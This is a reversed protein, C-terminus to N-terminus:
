PREKWRRHQWFYQEPAERVAEELRSTYVQVLDRVDRDLEGTREVPLEEFRVEYAPEGGSTRFAVGLFVRADARLALVGPGRATNAPRGFFEAPIGGRAPNQDAVLAVAGGRRLVSLVEAPANRRYIVRMGLRERTRVLERDFLPNAQRLAVVALPVGRASVAAGGIEWNGLHGTLFVVGREEALADRVPGLGRVATRELLDSREMEAMRLM